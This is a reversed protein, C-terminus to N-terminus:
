GISYTVILILQGAHEQVKRPENAHLAFYEHATAASPTPAHRRSTLQIKRVRLVQVLMDEPVHALAAIVRGLPAPKLLSFVGLLVPPKGQGKPPKLRTGGGM